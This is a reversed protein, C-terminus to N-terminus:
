GIRMRLPVVLHDTCLRCVVSWTSLRHSVDDGHRFPGKDELHHNTGGPPDKSTSPAPSRVKTQRLEISDPISGTSSIVFVLCVDM